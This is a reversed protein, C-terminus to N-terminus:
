NKFKAKCFYESDCKDEPVCNGNRARLYGDECICGKICYKPDLKICPVPQGLQTCNRAQCGRNVCESYVEHEKCVPASFLIMLSRFYNKIYNNENKLQLFSNM